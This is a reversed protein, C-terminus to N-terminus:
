DNKQLVKESIPDNTSIINNYKLHLSIKDM